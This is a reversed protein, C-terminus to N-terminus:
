KSAYIKVSESSADVQIFFVPHHLIRAVSLSPVGLMQCVSGTGTLMLSMGSLTVRPDVVIWSLERNVIYYGEIWNGTM